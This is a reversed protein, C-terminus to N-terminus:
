VWGVLNYVVNAFRGSLSLAYACKVELFWPVPVRCSFGTALLAPTGVHRSAVAHWPFRTLATPHRWPFCLSRCLHPHPRGTASLRRHKWLWSSFAWTGLSEGM